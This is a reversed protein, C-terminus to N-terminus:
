LKGGPPKLPLEPCSGAKKDSWTPRFVKGHQYIYAFDSGRHQKRAPMMAGGWRQKRKPEAIPEDSALDPLEAQLSVATM